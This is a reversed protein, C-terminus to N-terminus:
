GLEERLRALARHRTSKVTGLKCELLTAIEADPLDAYYTLALVARQRFPLRRLLALTEDLQPEDLHTRPASPAKRRAVGERRLHSRCLNMTVTRLFGYPSDLAGWRQHVRLFAEQAIEEAVGGSGVVAHALRVMAGWSTRYFDDFSRGLEAEAAGMSTRVVGMDGVDIAVLSPLAEGPVVVLRELGVSPEM